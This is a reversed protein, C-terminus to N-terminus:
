PTPEEAGAKQERKLRLLEAREREKEERVRYAAEIADDAKEATRLAMFTEGPGKAIRLRLLFRGDKPCNALYLHKDGSQHVWHIEKELAAGCGPCHFRAIDPLAFVAKKNPIGQKRLTELPPTFGRIGLILPNVLKWYQPIGADLDLRAAIMATYRADNLADHFQDDQELQYYEIASSLAKQNADLKEQFNFIVQLNIWPNLWQTDMQYFSLNAELNPFDDYGWTLFITDEPGCWDRFRQVAQQFPIGHKLQAETLSTIKKVHPHLVKYCHPAVIEQFSDTIRRDQNLKVAGFQIIESTLFNGYKRYSVSDRSIPQNWELDLVIYQV